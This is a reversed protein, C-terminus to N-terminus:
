AALQKNKCTSNTSNSGDQFISYRKDLVPPVNGPMNLHEPWDASSQRQVQIAGIREVPSGGLGSGLEKVNSPFKMGDARRGLNALERKWVEASIRRGALAPKAVNLLASSSTAVVPAVAAMAPPSTDAAAGGAGMQYLQSLALAADDADAEDGDDLFSSVNGSNRTTRAAKRVPQIFDRWTGGNAGAGAASGGGAGELDDYVSTAVSFIDGTYTSVPPDKRIRPVPVSAKRKETKRKSGADPRREPRAKIPIDCQRRVMIHRCESAISRGQGNEYIRGEATLAALHLTHKLTPKDLLHKTHLLANHFNLMSILDALLAEWKMRVHDDTEVAKRARWWHSREREFNSWEKLLISPSRVFGEIPVFRWFANVVVSECAMRITQDIKYYTYEPQDAVLAIATTMKSVSEPGSTHFKGVVRECLMKILNCPGTSRAGAYQDLIRHKELTDNYLMKIATACGENTRLQHLSPVDVCQTCWAPVAETSPASKQGITM